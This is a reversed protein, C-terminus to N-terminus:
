IAEQISMSEKLITFYFTTGIDEKSEVWVSGHYSHIIKKVISLGIGSSSSTSELKTFVKFIKDFYDPHIGIGNDKVFFEFYENKETFGVEIIGNEKDNYKIANQILNQFVLKFKLANGYLIPLNEQVKIKINSPISIAKLVEDIMTNLHISRDESELKDISSYALIGKILLDMKEVNFLVEKLPNLFNEGLAEKNDEIFWHVLTHINILPAKLDHSVAQAYDNLEENQISLYNLLEEKKQEQEKIFEENEKRQIINVLMNAFVFLINKENESYQHIKRVSDFGVFGILESNKIKPITILSKIGQSELIARLGFEGDRPLLSVDEAYFAEGNKHANIWEPIFDNLSIDQLNDIEPAIDKACWEYTNSTTNNRFNYSFIYSRDADVFEGIQKLSKRVLQDIDSLDANIYKTSISILLDQLLLQQKIIEDKKM